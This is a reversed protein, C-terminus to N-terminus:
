GGLQQLLTEEEPAMISIGQVEETMSIFKNFKSDSFILRHEGVVDITALIHQAAVQMMDELEQGERLVEKRLDFTAIFNIPDERQKLYIFYEIDIEARDGEPRDRERM